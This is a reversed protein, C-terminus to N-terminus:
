GELGDEAVEERRSDSMEEVEAEDSAVTVLLSGEEEESGLFPSVM